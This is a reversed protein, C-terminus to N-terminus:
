GGVRVGFEHGERNVLVDGFHFSCGAWACTRGSFNAASVATHLALQTRCPQAPARQRAVGVVDNAGDEYRHARRHPPHLGYASPSKVTPPLRLTRTLAEGM